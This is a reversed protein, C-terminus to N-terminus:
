NVKVAHIVFRELETRSTCTSLTIIKDNDSISFDGTKIESKNIMKKVETIFTNTEFQITYSDSCDETTYAAFIKYKETIGNIKSIYIYPHNNYFDQNKYKNVDTFMTGNQMNHGYIITNKDKFENNKDSIFICGAFNQTGDFAYHLCKNNDTSQVIPYNIQTDPIYIWGICNSNISLLNNFDINLKIVDTNINNEDKKKEIKINKELEKYIVTGKHYESFITFLKYGSFIVGFISIILLTNSIIKKM